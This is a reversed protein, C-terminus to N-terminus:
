VYELHRASTFAKAHSAGRQILEMLEQMSDIDHRKLTSSIITFRQDIDKYTHGVLLFSLCVEAFYSLGVLAACFVFM